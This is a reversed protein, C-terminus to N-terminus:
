LKALTVQHHLRRLHIIESRWFRTWLARDMWLHNIIMIMHHSPQSAESPLRPADAPFLLENPQPSAEQCLPCTTTISTSTSLQSAQAKFQHKHNHQKRKNISGPLPSLHSHHKHKNVHNHKHHKRAFSLHYKAKISTIKLAHFQQHKSNNVSPITSATPMASRFCDHVTKDDKLLHFLTALMGTGIDSCQLTPRSLSTITIPPSPLSSLTSLSLSLSLFHPVLSSWSWWRPSSDDSSPSRFHSWLQRRWYLAVSTWTTWVEGGWHPVDGARKGLPKLTFYSTCSHANFWLWLADNACQNQAFQGWVIPGRAWSCVRFLPCNTWNDPAGNAELAATWEPARSHDGQLSRTLLSRHLSSWKTKPRVRPHQCQFTSRKQCFFVYTSWIIIQRLLVIQLDKGFGFGFNMLMRGHSIIMIIVITIVIM